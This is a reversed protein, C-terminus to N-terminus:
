DEMLDPDFTCSSEYEDFDKGRFVNGGLKSNYDLYARSRDITNLYEAMLSDSMNISQRSHIYWLCESARHMFETNNLAKEEDPSEPTTDENNICATSVTFTDKVLEVIKSDNFSENTSYNFFAADITANPVGLFDQLITGFTQRYDFQVTKLQYNNEKVAEKLDPNVGSVGGKIPKGFLFMPAIEGHDTGFNGNEAAKRGFESFTIGVVDDSLSQSDLDSYFATVAESLQSLLKYHNGLPDNDGQVQNNHTDFGGLQVMYVKTELNGSILRAVTKLQNAINTDPYTIKNSGSNFSTSITKAYQNSLADTTKIFEIQNGYDSMPINEPPTGGLGNLISYYGAVDQGTINIAMGHEQEGHFGLSSKNSGIEIALPFLSTVDKAYFLEMFRGIWGTDTGNEVSNGDNGTLYLDTSKFHSKNQSPYGVGQLIRLWGEDYLGKFGTLAPNLGIKQNDPLSADLTIYANSGSQPVKIKPRLTSYIDYQNLPIITNLGDNGGSLNILVLKRNSIDPCEVLPLLPKLMAQIEFPTLGIVSATASLKIFKRRKM